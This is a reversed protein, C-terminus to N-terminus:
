MWVDPQVNYDCNTINLQSTVKTVVNYTAFNIKRGGWNCGVIVNKIPNFVGIEINFYPVIVTAKTQMDSTYEVSTIHPGDNFLVM